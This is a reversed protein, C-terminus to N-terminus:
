CPRQQKMGSQSNRRLQADMRPPNVIVPNVVFFRHLICAVHSQLAYRACFAQSCQPCLAATRGETDSRDAIFAELSPKNCKDAACRQLKETSQSPQPTSAKASLPCSHSEPQIHDKCYVRECRCKIPLFDNVNCRELSCHAGVALDATSM